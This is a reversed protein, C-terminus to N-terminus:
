KHYLLFPKCNPEKISTDQIQPHFMSQSLASGLSQNGIFYKSGKIWKAMDLVTPTSIYTSKITPNINNFKNYEQLSGVYYIDLDSEIYDKYNLLGPYRESKQILIYENDLEIFDNLEIWSNTPPYPIEIDYHDKLAICHCEILHRQDKSRSVYQRWHNLNISNSPPNKTYEVKSIYPQQELLTKISKFHPAACKQPTIYLEVDVFYSAVYMGYIIDGLKGYHTLSNM